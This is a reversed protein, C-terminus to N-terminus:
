GETPGSIGQRNREQQQIQLLISLAEDEQLQQTKLAATQAQRGRQQRRRDFGTLLDTFRVDIEASGLAQARADLEVLLTKVQLDDFELLLRNFDPIERSAHLQLCKDYLMKAAASSMDDATVADFIRTAVDGAQLVLAFLEQEFPDLTLREPPAPAARSSAPRASSKRRLEVLRERLQEEPVQFEFALRQLFKEQRLRDETETHAGLRPARAITAVLQELAEAAAHVDRRLDIGETQSHFAHDLADRAVDILEGFAEGGRELLFECPDLEDPLTLVRLDAGAAVFLQLIENARKRGALDGDLVSVIRLRDAFRRLLQIHEAGLATGLVAVANSYGCQHAVICDTYGEMVLATNSKRIPERAAHLGYLLKSKTFLPTEPSNIYKATNQDSSGPLVRGGIGVARGQLDFIPFLVRGRFRDYHGPGGTRRALLGIRELQAPTFSTGRAEGILWDWRDPAFGLQFLEVSEATIGRQVLYQRAPEAEAANQLCQHFRRTAWEMAALLTRKEDSAGRAQRSDSQDHAIGARDALMRLAEPFAVGEMQM